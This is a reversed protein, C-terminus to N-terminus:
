GIAEQRMAEPIGRWAEALPRLLAVVEELGQAQNKAHAELLKKQMYGYLLDLNEALEGGAKFDLSERLGGLIAVAKGILEGKRALNGAELATRAAQIREVAGDFLMQVLRHGDAEEVQSELDIKRYQELRKAAYM